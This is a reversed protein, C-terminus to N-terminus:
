IKVRVEGRMLKPLLTDRLKELIHTQTHNNVWFKETAHQLVPYGEDARVTGDKALCFIIAMLFITMLIIWLKLLAMTLIDSGM